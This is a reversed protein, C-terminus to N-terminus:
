RRARLRRQSAPASCLRTRGPGHRLFAYSLDAGITRPQIIGANFTSGAVAPGTNNIFNIGRSNGLNKGYVSLKVKAIEVGANLDFTTYSPVDLPFKNGQLSSDTFNSIRKGIYNYSGGVWAAHGDLAFRYDAGLAGTSRAKGGNTLYNYTAGYMATDASPKWKASLLFSTKDSDAQQDILAPVQVFISTQYDQHYKQTSSACRLGGLLDFTPTVSWTANGFVSYEDFKTGLMANFLPGCLGPFPVGDILPLLPPLTNTSDEHTYFLGAEYELKDDFASAPACNRRSASPPSRRGNPCSSAPFPCRPM